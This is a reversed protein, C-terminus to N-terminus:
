RLSRDLVFFVKRVILLCFDIIQYCFLTGYFTDIFYFGGIVQKALLSCAFSASNVLIQLIHPLWRQHFGGGWWDVLPPQHYTTAIVSHNLFDLVEV